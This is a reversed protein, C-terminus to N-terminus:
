GGNQHRHRWWQYAATGLARYRRYAYPANAATNLISVVILTILLATM